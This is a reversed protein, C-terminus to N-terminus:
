SRLKKGLSATTSPNPSRWACSWDRPRQSRAQPHHPRSLQRQSRRLPLFQPPRHRVFQLKGSRLPELTDNRSPLLWRGRPPSAHCLPNPRHNRPVFHSIVLCFCSRGLRWFSSSVFQTRSRIEILELM